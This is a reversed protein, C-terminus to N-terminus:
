ANFNHLPPGGGSGAKVDWNPKPNLTKLTKPEPSAAACMFANGFDRTGETRVLSNDRAYLPLGM